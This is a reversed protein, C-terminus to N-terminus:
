KAPAHKRYLGVIERMGAETYVGEAILHRRAGAFASDRAVAYVPVLLQAIGSREVPLTAAPDTASLRLYEIATKEYNYGAQNFYFTMTQSMAIGACTKDQNCGAIASMTDQEMQTGYMSITQYFEIFEPGTLPAAMDTDEFAFAVPSIAALALAAAALTRKM